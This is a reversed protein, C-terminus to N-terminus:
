RWSTKRVNIAKLVLLLCVQDPICMGETLPVKKSVAGETKDFRSKLSSRIHNPHAEQEVPQGNARRYRCSNLYFSVITSHDCTKQHEALVAEGVLLIITGLFLVISSRWM